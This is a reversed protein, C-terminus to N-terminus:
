EKKQHTPASKNFIWSVPIQIPYGASGGRPLEPAQRRIAPYTTADTLSMGLVHDSGESRENAIVTIEATMALGLGGHVPLGGIFM